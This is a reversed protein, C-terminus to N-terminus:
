KLLHTLNCQVLITKESDGGTEFGSLVLDTLSAYMAIYTRAV